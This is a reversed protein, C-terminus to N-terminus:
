RRGGPWVTVESVSYGPRWAPHIDSVGSHSQRVTSRPAAETIYSVGDESVYSPPRPGEAPEAAPQAAIASSARSNPVSSFISNRNEQDQVRQWHLLNPDVRVSSRWLGYAPPPPPPPLDDKDLDIDREVDREMDNGAEEDRALRVRIPRIPQFGEPGTMDPIHPRNQAPPPNLILMCLRILSHCFFITITLLVM